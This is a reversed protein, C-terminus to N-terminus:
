SEVKIVEISFIIPQGALIHNGDLIAEGKEEDINKVTWIKETQDDKFQVGVITEPPLQDIAYSMLLEEDYKGFAEEPKLTVEKKEGEDLGIVAQNLGSILDFEGVTFDLPGDNKSDSFVQGDELKAVFNISIKDGSKISM